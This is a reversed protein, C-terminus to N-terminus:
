KRYVWKLETLLRVNMMVGGVKADDYMYGDAYQYLPLFPFEEETILKEADRLIGLRKAPDRESFAKDM